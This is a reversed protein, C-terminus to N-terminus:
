TWSKKHNQIMKKIVEHVSPIGTVCNNVVKRAFYENLYDELSPQM